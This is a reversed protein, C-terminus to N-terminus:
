RFIDFFTVTLMLGILFLFGILNAYYQFNLNIKRRFVSEYIVFLFRGGDLAPLPLANFVALNISLLAMFSFLSQWGAASAGGAMKAIGVPGSLSSLVNEGSFLKSFIDIMGIVTLKTYEATESVGKSLADWVNLKVKEGYAVGMGVSKRDTTVGYVARVTSTVTEGTKEKKFVITIDADNNKKVFEIVSTASKMDAFSTKTKFELVEDNTELGATKAPSNNVVGTVIVKPNKVYNGYMPDSVSIYRDGMNVYFLLVAALLLNMIIGASLVFLQALKSKNQFAKKDNKNKEREEPDFSEGTIKVYGGIPLLNFNYETEGIKKGFVKPPFGFAFEEVRMGCMKAAAFHGFEHIM